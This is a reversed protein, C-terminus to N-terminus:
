DNTGKLGITWQNNYTVEISMKIGGCILLAIDEKFREAIAVEKNSGGGAYCFSRPVGKEAAVPFCSNIVYEDASGDTVRNNFAVSM